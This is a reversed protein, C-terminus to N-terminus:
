KPGAIGTVGETGRRRSALRVAEPGVRTFTPWQFAEHRGSERSLATSGFEVQTFEVKSEFPDSYVLHTHGLDRLELTYSNSLNGRQEPHKELVVACTRSNGIDLVLNTEVVPVGSRQSNALIKIRPIKVQSDLIHLLHLFKGWAVEPWEELLEDVQEKTLAVGKNNKLSAGWAREVWKSVWSSLLFANLLEADTVQGYVKGSEIDQLTPTLYGADAVAQPLNTDFAVTLRYFNGEEDPVELRKIRIRVWNLPGQFFSGDSKKQFFPIPLWQEDFSALTDIGTAYQKPQGSFREKSPLTLNGSKDPILLIPVRVDDGENKLAKGDIFNGEPLLKPSKCFGFDLFQIGTGEILSVQEEFQTLRALM